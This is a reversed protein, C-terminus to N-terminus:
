ILHFFSTQLCANKKFRINQSGMIGLRHDRVMDIDNYKEPDRGSPCLSICSYKYPCHVMIFKNILSHSQMTMVRFPANRDFM